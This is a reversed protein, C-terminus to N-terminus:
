RNMLKAEDDIRTKFATSTLVRNIYAALKPWREADVEHRAYRANLFHTGLSIDAINLRDGGLFGTEPATKELYDQMPPVKNELNRQVKAEDPEQKMMKKVIREFFLNAGFCEALKTDAYEELWLCHAKAVHDTPYISNEPYKADLYQCIISSDPVTIHEDEFVPVKKLPSIEAFEPPTSFPMVMKLEYAQNKEELTILVKRVFPSLIPGHIINM